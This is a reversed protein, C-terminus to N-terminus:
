KSVLTSSSCSQMKSNQGFGVFSQFPVLSRSSLNQCCEDVDISDVEGLVSEFEDEFCYKYSSNVLEVMFSNNHEKLVTFLEKM